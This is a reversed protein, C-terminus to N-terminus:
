LELASFAHGIEHKEGANGTENGFLDGQLQQRRAIPHPPGHAGSALGREDPFRQFLGSPSDVLQFEDLRIQGLIVAPIGSHGSAAEDHM